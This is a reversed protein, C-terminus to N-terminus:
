AAGAAMSEGNEGNNESRYSGSSSVSIGSKCSCALVYAAVGNIYM